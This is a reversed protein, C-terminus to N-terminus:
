PAAEDGGRRDAAPQLAREGAGWAGGDEDRVGSVADRRQRQEHQRVGAEALPFCETIREWDEPYHRRILALDAGELGRFSHGLVGYEPAVKLRRWRVYELVDRKNWEALPFFRGRAAQVSGGSGRIQARRFTSDAIREGAAIWYTGTLERVYDYTEKPSVIPVDLDAARYTGYRLLLGMEFHPIRAIEIGHKDEYHRLIAEQFSLGPVHYMFFASVKPFFRCCLDLTVVSDKGGSFSVLVRDTIKAATRIGAYHRVSM